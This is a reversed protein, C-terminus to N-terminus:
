QKHFYKALGWLLEIAQNRTNQKYQESVTTYLM